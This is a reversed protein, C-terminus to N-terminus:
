LTGFRTSSRVSGSGFDPAPLTSLRSNRAGYQAPRSVITAPAHRVRGRACRHLGAHRPRLELRQQALPDLRDVELEGVVEAEAQARGLEHVRGRRAERRQDGRAGRDVGFARQQLLVLLAELDVLADEDRVHEGIRSETAVEQV